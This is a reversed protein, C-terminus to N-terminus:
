AGNTGQTNRVARVNRVARRAEEDWLSGARRRKRAARYEDGRCDFPGDHRQQGAAHRAQAKAPRTRPREVAYTAGAALMAWANAGVDKAYRGYASTGPWDAGRDRRAVCRHTAVLVPAEIVGHERRSRSSTTRASASSRARHRSPDRGLQGLRDAHGARSNRCGRNTPAAGTTFFFTRIRTCAFTADARLRFPRGEICVHRADLAARAAGRLRRRRAPSTWFDESDAGDAKYALALWEAKVAEATTKWPIKAGLIELRASRASHRRAAQQRVGTADGASGAWPSGRAARYRAVIELPHHTPLLLHAMAATEDPVGGMWVVFPVKQLAEAIRAAPPMSFVPNAARSLCRRRDSRERMADFRRTSKTRRAPRRRAPSGEFFM